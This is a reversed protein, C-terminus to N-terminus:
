NHCIYLHKSNSNSDLTAVGNLDVVYRGLTSTWFQAGNPLTAEFEFFYNHFKLPLDETSVPLQFGAPCSAGSFQVNKAVVVWQKLTDPDSWISNIGPAGAIGPEGEAGQEGAIGQDGDKGDIGDKGDKGNAGDKGTDGKVGRVDVVQWSSKLCAQFEKLSEIYVLRGEVSDSCDPLSSPDAVYISEAEKPETAATAAKTPEAKQDATATPKEEAGCASLLFLILFRKM